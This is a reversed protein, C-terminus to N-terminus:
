KASDAVKKSAKFEELIKKYVDSNVIGKIYEDWQEISMKGMVVLAKNDNLDQIVNTWSENYADSQLTLTPCTIKSEEVYKRSLDRIEEARAISEKSSGAKIFKDAIYDPDTDLLIQNWGGVYGAKKAAAQEDSTPLLSQKDDTLTYHIGELGNHLMWIYDESTRCLADIVRPLNEESVNKSIMVPNSYGAGTDISVTYSKPGKVPLMAWVQASDEVSKDFYKKTVLDESQNWVYWNHMKAVSKGAVFSSNDTQGLVFEPDIAGADYLKKVWLLFDDYEKMFSQYYFDGNSDVGWDQVGTYAVAIQKIQTSEFDDTSFDLGYLGSKNHFDILFDSLEDVTKPEATIGYKAMLDKRVLIGACPVPDALKRPIAYIQGKYSSNEWIQDSWNKLIENKDKFGNDIVYPTLDWFMGNDIADAVQPYFTKGDVPYIQTVDTINGALMQMNIREKYDQYPVWTVEMDLNLMKEFAQEMEGNEEAGNGWAIGTFSVKLPPLTSYDVAETAAPTTTAASTSSATSSDAGSNGSCSALSTVTSLALITCLLKNRTTKKM